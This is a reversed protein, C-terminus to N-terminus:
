MASTLQDVVPVRLEGGPKGTRASNASHARLGGDRVRRGVERDARAAQGLAELGQDGDVVHVQAHRLRVDVAEEAGVTRALGRGDAHQAAQHRRGFALDFHEAQVQRLLGFFQAAADAVHRLLERQEVVQAHALVQLEEGGHLVDRARLRARADVFEDLTVVEGIALFLEGARHAAALLLAEREGAGHDMRRFQQEEVFRGARHIGFRAAVEPFFEELEGVAARRDEDGRVVHVFGFAAMADRDEVAAHEDGVAARGFERARDGAAREGHMGVRRAAHAACQHFHRAHDAGRLDAVGQAHEGGFVVHDIAQLLRDGGRAQVALDGFGFGVEFVDEDDAM